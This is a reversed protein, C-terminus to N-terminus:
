MCCWDETCQKTCNQICMDSKIDVVDLKLPSVEVQLTSSHIGFDHLVEKCDQVAQDYVSIDRITIHVSAIILEDAVKWVHLDHVGHVGNIKELCKQLVSIEIEGPVRQVLIESAEKIVSAISAVIIGVIILSIVPDLYVIWVQDPFFYLLLATMLVFLSSLSDGVQHLFVVKMNLNFSREWWPGKEDHSDGHDHSDHSDGTYHLDHDCPKDDDHRHKDSHGHKEKHVHEHKHKDDEHGDRGHKDDHGHKDKHEHKDSHGHKEKHGHEHKDNDHGHKKGHSHGGGGGGHSHGHTGTVLLCTFFPFSPPFVYAHLPHRFVSQCLPYCHCSWSVV